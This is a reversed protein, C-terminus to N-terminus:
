KRMRLLQLSLLPQRSLAQSPHFTNNNIHRTQRSSGSSIRSMQGRYKLACRLKEPSMKHTLEVYLM